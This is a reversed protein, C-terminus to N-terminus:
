PKPLSHPKGIEEMEVLKDLSDWRVQHDQLDRYWMFLDPGGIGGEELHHLIQHPLPPGDRGGDDDSPDSGGDGGGSEGNRRSPEEGRKQTSGMKVQVEVGIQIVMVVQAVMGMPGKMVLGMTGGSPKNFKGNKDEQLAERGGIPPAEERRYQELGTQTNNITGRKTQDGKEKKPDYVTKVITESLDPGRSPAKTTIKLPKRKSLTLKLVGGGPTVQSLQQPTIELEFSDETDSEEEDEDGLDYNGIVMARIVGMEMMVERAVVLGGQHHLCLLNGTAITPIIPIAKPVQHETFREKGKRIKLVMSREMVMEKNGIRIKMVMSLDMVTDLDKGM